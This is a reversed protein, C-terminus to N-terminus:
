HRAAAARRRQRWRGLGVWAALVGLVLALTGPEPLARGTPDEGEAGLTMLLPGGHATLALVPLPVRKRNRELRAGLVSVNGCVDPVMVSYLNGQKDAAEYLSAREVHGQKFNVRANVCMTHGYTLAVNRPDFVREDRETRIGNNSIELRDDLQGRGVKEAIRQVVEPPLKATVLAQDVTGRYPNTGPKGWACGQRLALREIAPPADDSAQLLPHATAIAVGEHHGGPPLPAEARMPRTARELPWVSSVIAASAVGALALAVPWAARLTERRSPWPVTHVWGMRSRRRGQQPLLGQWTCAGGACRYRALAAAGPASRDDATRPIRLLADGCAPCRHRRGESYLLM